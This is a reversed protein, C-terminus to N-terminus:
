DMLIVWWLLCMVHNNNNKILKELTSSQSKNFLSTFNSIAIIIIYQCFKTEGSFNFM